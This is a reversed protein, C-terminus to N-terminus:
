VLKSKNILDKRDFMERVDLGKFNLKNNTM